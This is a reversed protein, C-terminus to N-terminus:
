YGTGERRMTFMALKWPSLVLLLGTNRCSVLCNDDYVISVEWSAADIRHCVVMVWFNMLWWDKVMQQKKQLILNAPLVPQFKRRTRISEITQWFEKGGLYEDVSNM